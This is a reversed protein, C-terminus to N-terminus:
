ESQKRIFDAVDGVGGGVSRTSNTFVVEGERNALVVKTDKKWSKKGLQRVIQLVFDAKEKITVVRIGKQQLTKIAELATDSSAMVGGGSSVEEVYVAPKVLKQARVDPTTVPPNPLVSKEQPPLQGESQAQASTVLFLAIIVLLLSFTKM